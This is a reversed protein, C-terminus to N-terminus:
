KVARAPRPIRVRLEIDKDRPGDHITVDTRVCTFDGKSLVFRDPEKPQDKAKDKPNENPQQGEVAPPNNPTSPKAPHFTTQAPALCAAMLAILAASLRALRASQM